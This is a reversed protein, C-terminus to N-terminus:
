IVGYYYDSDMYDINRKYNLAEFAKLLRKPLVPKTSFFTCDLRYSQAVFYPDDSFWFVPIQPRMKKVGICAEMGEAGDALIIILEFEKESLEHRLADYDDIHRIILAPLPENELSSLVASLEEYDQESGFIIANM